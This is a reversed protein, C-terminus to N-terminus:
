PARSPLANSRLKDLIALRDAKAKEEPFRLASGLAPHCMHYRGPYDLHVGLKAAAHWAWRPDDLFKRALAVLDAKGSAVVDEALEPEWIQGVAMTPVGAEARVREAFPVQYGPGSVIRQRDSVGGSSMCIFDCGRAKLESAFIVSDDMDWGGDVWDQATVRV